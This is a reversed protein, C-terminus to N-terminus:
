YICNTANDIVGEWKIQEKLPISFNVPQNIIDKEKFKGNLFTFGTISKRSQAPLYCWVEGDKNLLVSLCLNQSGGQHNSYYTVSDTANMKGPLIEAGKLIGGIHPTQVWLIEIIGDYDMDYIAAINLWRNATGIESLFAYPHLHNNEIKYVVIGAGEGTKSRICIIEPVKDNNVDVLRPRIDEFVYDGELTLSYFNNAYYVVLQSAEIFDGLAGHKYRETPVAYQAYMLSDDSIAVQKEPMQDFLGGLSSIIEDHTLVSDSPEVVTEENIIIPSSECAILGCVVIGIPFLGRNLWTYFDITKYGLIKFM